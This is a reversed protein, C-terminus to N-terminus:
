NRADVEAAIAHHHGVNGVRFLPRTPLLDFRFAPPAAALGSGQRQALGTRVLFVLLELDDGQVVLLLFVARHAARAAVAVDGAAQHTAFGATNVQVLRVFLHAVDIARG